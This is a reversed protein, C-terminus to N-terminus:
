AVGSMQTAHARLLDEIDAATTSDEVPVDAVIRAPRPSLVLVRDSLNIAEQASHTVLIATTGRSRWLPPLEQGLTARTIADVAGFPEDLLLVKPQSALCRAIAARQRMGGSLEAPRHDEFGSLGVRTILDDVLNPDASQRALKRGLAVNSRVTRWPLLAADQFAMALGGRRAVVLPTENGITVIGESPTELGAVLRLLTSKGCGSPGVLAITQGASFVANFPDLAPVEGSLSAYTKALGQCHIDQGAM